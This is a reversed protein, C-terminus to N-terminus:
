RVKYAKKVQSAPLFLVNRTGRTMFGMQTFVGAATVGEVEAVGLDGRQALTPIVEEFNKDLVDEVSKYGHEALRRLASKEDSYDRNYKDPPALKEGTIAEHADDAIIFCDSEGYRSVMGMHKQVVEKLRKEWGSVRAM